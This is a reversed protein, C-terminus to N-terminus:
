SSPPGFRGEQYVDELQQTRPLWVRTHTAVEERSHSLKPNLPIETTPFPQPGPANSWPPGIRFTTVM